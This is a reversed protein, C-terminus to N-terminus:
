SDRNRLRQLGFRKSLMRDTISFPLKALTAVLNSKNGTRLVAPPQDDTIEAIVEAAFEEASTANIQSALARETVADRISAYLSDTQMNTEVQAAANNGMESRIAGPQVTVVNVGFPALELRLATSLSHLASKSACYAGSFPTTLLGSVSGMNVICGSGREVMQPAVAQALVIPAITNTEFQQRLAPTKVDLLPGMEGYGANNILIDIHGAAAVAATISDTDTVDLPLTDLADSTLDTISEIRRATAIVHHGDNAAQVALARGIGTSCGTIFIRLSKKSSAM